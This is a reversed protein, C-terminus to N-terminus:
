DDRFCESDSSSCSEKASGAFVVLDKLDKTDISIQRNKIHGLKNSSKAKLHYSKPGSSNHKALPHNLLAFEGVFDENSSGLPNADSARKSSISGINLYKKNEDM